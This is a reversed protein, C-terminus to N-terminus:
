KPNRQGHSGGQIKVYVVEPEAKLSTTLAKLTTTLAARSNWLSMKTGDDREDYAQLTPLPEKVNRALFSGYEEFCQGMAEKENLAAYAAAKLLYSQHIFGFCQHIIAVQEDIAAERTKGKRLKNNDYNENKLYSIASQMKLTLQNCSDALAHVAEALLQSRLTPDHTKQAEQCLHLGSFYSAIRDDQQGKLIEKIDSAIDVLSDSVDSLKQSLAQYELMAMMQQTNAAQLMGEAHVPIKSGYLNGNRFQAFVQGREQVLKLAGSALGAQQSATLDLVYKGGKLATVFNQAVESSQAVKVIFDTLSQQSLTETQKAELCFSLLSDESLCTPVDSVDSSNFVPLSEKKQRM